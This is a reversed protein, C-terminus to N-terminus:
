GQAAFADDGFGERRHTNEDDFGVFVAFGVAGLGADDDKPIKFVSVIGFRSTVGRDQFITGEAEKKGLSNPVSPYELLAVTFVCEALGDEGVVLAHGDTGGDPVRGVVFVFEPEELFSEVAKPPRGTM